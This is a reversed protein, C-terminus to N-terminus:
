GGHTPLRWLVNAGDRGAQQVMGKDRMNCLANSARNRINTFTADDPRLGRAECFRIAVMRSTIPAGTERMLDMAARQMEGKGAAHYNPLRKPKAQAGDIEPAFLKLVVDIADIGITLTKTEAEAIKLRAVLERRKDILGAVTNPREM